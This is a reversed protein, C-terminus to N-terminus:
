CVLLLTHNSGQSLLSWRSCSNQHTLAFPQIRHFVLGSSQQPKLATEQPQWCSLVGRQLKKRLKYTVLKQQEKPQPPKSPFPLFMNHLNALGSDRAPNDWNVCTSTHAPASLLSAGKQPLIFQHHQNKNASPRTKRPIESSQQHMQNLCPARHFYKSSM